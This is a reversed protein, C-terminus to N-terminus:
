DDLSRTLSFTSECHDPGTIHLLLGKGTREAEWVWSTGDPCGFDFRALCDRTLAAPCRSRVQKQTIEEPSGCDGGTYTGWDFDAARDCHTTLPRADEVPVVCSTLLLALLLGCRPKSAYAARPLAGNLGPRGAAIRSSTRM